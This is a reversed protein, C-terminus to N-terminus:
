QMIMKNGGCSKERDGRKSHKQMKKGVRLERGGGAMPKATNGGFQTGERIGVGPDLDVREGLEEIGRRKEGGV